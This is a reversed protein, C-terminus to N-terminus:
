ANGESSGVSAGKASGLRILKVSMVVFWALVIADVIRQVLGDPLGEGRAFSGFIVLVVAAINIPYWNRWQSSRKMPNVLLLVGAVWAIGSVISVIAHVRTHWSTIVPVGNAMLAPFFGQGALGLGFLPLLWTALRGARTREEDIVVTLRWSTLALCLGPVIFGVINWVVANRTGLAGLESIDNAVQSYSPRLAGLILLAVWFVVCAAVGLIGANRRNLM